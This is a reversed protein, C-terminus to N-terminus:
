TAESIGTYTSWKNLIEGGEGYSYIGLVKVNVAAAFIRVHILCAFPMHVWLFIVCKLM